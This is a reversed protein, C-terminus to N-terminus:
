LNQLNMRLHQFPHGLAAFHGRKLDALEHPKWSSAYAQPFQFRFSTQPRIPHRNGNDAACSLRKYSAVDTAKLRPRSSVTTQIDESDHIGRNCHHPLGYRPRRGSSVVVLPAPGPISSHLVCGLVIERVRPKLRQYRRSGAFGALHPTRQEFPAAVDGADKRNAATPKHQSAPQECLM